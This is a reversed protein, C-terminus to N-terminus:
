VIFNPRRRPFAPIGARRYLLRRGGGSLSRSEADLGLLPADENSAIVRAMADLIELLGSRIGRVAVGAEVEIV